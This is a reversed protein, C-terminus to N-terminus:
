FSSGILLADDEFQLGGRSLAFAPGFCDKIVEGIL